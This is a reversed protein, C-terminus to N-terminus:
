SLSESDGWLGDGSEDKRASMCISLFSGKKEGAPERQGLMPAILHQNKGTDDISGIHDFFLDEHQPVTVGEGPVWLTGDRFLLTAVETDPM